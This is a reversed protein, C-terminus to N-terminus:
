YVKSWGLFIPILYSKVCVSPKTTTTAACAACIYRIPEDAQESEGLATESKVKSM